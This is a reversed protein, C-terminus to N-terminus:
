APANHQIGYLAIKSRLTNRTMGLIRAARTQNGGTHRLTEEILAPEVEALVTRYLNDPETCGMDQLYRRVTKRVHSRLPKKSTM